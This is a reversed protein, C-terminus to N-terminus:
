AQEACLDRGCQTEGEGERRVERRGHHHLRLDAARNGGDSCSARGMCHWNLIKSGLGIVARRSAVEM